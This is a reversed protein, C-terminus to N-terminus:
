FQENNNKDIDSKCNSANVVQSFENNKSQNETSTADVSVDERNPTGDASEIQANTSAGNASHQVEFFSKGDALGMSVFNPYDRKNVFVDFVGLCFTTQGTVAICLWVTLLLCCAVLKAFLWPLLYCAVVPLVTAAIVGLSSFLRKFTLILSNLLLKTASVNYLSAQAFAFMATQVVIATATVCLIVAVTWVFSNSATMTFVAFDAFYRLLAVVCGSLFGVLAFQKWATKIGRGFDDFLKVSQGWCLRRVVYFLGALGVAAIAFLVADTGFRLLTLNFLYALQQQTDMGETFKGVYWGCILDWSLLPLFFLASLLNAKFLIGFRTKLVFVFQQLRNKPLDASSFDTSRGKGFLLNYVFGKKM